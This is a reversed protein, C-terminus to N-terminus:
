DEAKGSLLPPKTDSHASVHLHSETLPCLEMTFCTRPMHSARPPM